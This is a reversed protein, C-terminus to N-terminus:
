KPCHKELLKKAMELQDDSLNRQSLETFSPDFHVHGTHDFCSKGRKRVYFRGFTADWMIYFGFKCKEDVLTQHTQNKVARSKRSARGKTCIMQVSEVTREVNWRRTSGPTITYGQDKLVGASWASSVASVTKFAPDLWLKHDQFTQGM